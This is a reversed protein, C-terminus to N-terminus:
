KAAKKGLRRELDAKTRARDIESQRKRAAKQEESMPRKNGLGALRKNMSMQRHKKLRKRSM